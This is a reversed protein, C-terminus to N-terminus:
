FHRGIGVSVQHEIDQYRFEYEDFNFKSGSCDKDHLAHFHSMFAIKFNYELRLFIQYRLTKEVGTGLNLSVFPHHVSPLTYEQKKPFNKLLQQTAENSIETKKIEDDYRESLDFDNNVCVIFKDISIINFSPGVKIYMLLDRLPNYGLRIALEAEFNKHTKINVSYTSKGKVNTRFGFQPDTCDLLTNDKSDGKFELNKYIFKGEIGIYFNQSLTSGKGVWVAIGYNNHTKNILIHDRIKSLFLDNFYKEQDAIDHDFTAYFVSLFAKFRSENDKLNQRLPNTWFIKPVVFTWM